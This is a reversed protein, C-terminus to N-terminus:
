LKKSPTSELSSYYDGVCKMLDDSNDSYSVHKIVKGEENTEFYFKGSYIARCGLKTELQAVFDIISTKNDNGSTFSTPKMSFTKLASVFPQFVTDYDGESCAPTGAFCVRFECKDDWAAKFTDPDSDVVNFADIVSNEFDKAGHALGLSFFLTTLFYMYRIMNAKIYPLEKEERTDKNQSGFTAM